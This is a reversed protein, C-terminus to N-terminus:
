ALVGTSTRISFPVAAMSRCRWDTDGVPSISSHINVSSISRTLGSWSSASAASHPKRTRLRPQIGSVTSHVPLVTTITSTAHPQADAREIWLEHVDIGVAAVHLQQPRAAFPAADAELEGARRDALADVRVRVVEEVHAAALIAILREAGAVHDLRLLVRQVGGRFAVGDDQSDAAAILEEAVLVLHVALM